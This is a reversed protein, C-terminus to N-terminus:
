LIQSQNSNQHQRQGIRLCLYPNAHCNSRAINPSRRGASVAVVIIIGVRARRVAVVSRVPKHTAYENTSTRPIAPSVAPAAAAPTITVAEVPTRAEDSATGKTCAPKGMTRNAAEMAAGCAAKVTASTEVTAAASEVAAATM